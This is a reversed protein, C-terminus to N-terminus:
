ASEFRNYSPILLDVQLAMHVMMSSGFSSSSAHHHNGDSFVALQAGAPDGHFDLCVNSRAQSWESGPAPARPREAPWILDSGTM